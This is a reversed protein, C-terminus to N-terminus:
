STHTGGNLHMTQGTFFAAEESALFVCVYGVEDPLGLRGVPIYKGMEMARERVPGEDPLMRGLSISNVTIGTAAEELAICRNFSVGFGKAGGYLSVGIPVGLHADSSITIVRGWQQERMHPLVAYACNVPGYVNVNMFPAWREPSEDKFRPTKGTAMVDSPIGANNVLIDVPGLEDAVAAVGATVADLDGVDFAVATATVGAARLRDASEEARDALLDNVAVKAGQAGLQRAIGAGINRGAGTVLAVKGTLDYM